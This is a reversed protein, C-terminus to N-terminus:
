DILTASYPCYRPTAGEIQGDETFNEYGTLCNNFLNLLNLTAQGMAVRGLCRAGARERNGIPRAITGRIDAM